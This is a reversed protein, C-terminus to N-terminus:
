EFWARFDAVCEDERAGDVTLEASTGRVDAESAVFNWRLELEANALGIAVVRIAGEHPGGPTAVRYLRIIRIGRGDVLEEVQQVLTQVQDDDTWQGREASGRRGRQPFGPDLWRATGRVFAVLQPEIADLSEVTRTARAGTATAFTM